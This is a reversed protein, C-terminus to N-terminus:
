AAGIRIGSLSASQRSWITLLTIAGGLYCSKEGSAEAGQLIRRGTHPQRRVGQLNQSLSRSGGWESKRLTEDRWSDPVGGMSSRDTEEEGRVPYIDQKRRGTRLNAASRNRHPAVGGGGAGMATKGVNIGYPPDVIALDFYQDPFCKMGEMCDLNYFGFDLIDNNESM